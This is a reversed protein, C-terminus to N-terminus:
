SGHSEVRELTDAWGVRTPSGGTLRRDHCSDCWVVQDYWEPHPRACNVCRGYAEYLEDDTM